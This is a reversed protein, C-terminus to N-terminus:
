GSALLARDLSTRKLAVLGLQRRVSPQMFSEAMDPSGAFDPLSIPIENGNGDLLTETESGSLLTGLRQWGEIFRTETLEDDEKQIVLTANAVTDEPMGLTWGDISGITGIITFRPLPITRGLGFTDLLRQTPADVFESFSVESANVGKIAKIGNIDPASQCDMTRSFQPIIKRTWLYHAASYVGANTTDNFIADARCASTDRDRSIAVASVIRSQGAGNGDSATKASFYYADRNEWEDSVPKNVSSARRLSRVAARFPGPMTSQEDTKFAIGQLDFSGISLSGLQMPEGSVM